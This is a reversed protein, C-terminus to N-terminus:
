LQEGALSYVLVEIILDRMPYDEPIDEIIDLLEIRQKLNPEYGNAYDFFTKAFHYAIKRQDSLLLKKLGIVDNFPQGAIEGSADVEAGIQFYGQPRYQFTGRHPQKLRYKTRWQGTADFNELAFGYPDISKHCAYCTQNSKHEEIQERLTAAKEGHDPEIAEVSEPPPSTADRRHNEFDM